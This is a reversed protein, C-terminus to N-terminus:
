QQTITKLTEIFDGWWHADVGEKEVPSAADVRLSGHADRDNEATGIGGERGMGLLMCVTAIVVALLLVVLVIRLKKRWNNITMVIM